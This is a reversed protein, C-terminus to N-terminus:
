IQIISVMEHTSGCGYYASKKAWESLFDFAINSMSRGGKVMKFDIYMWGIDIEFLECFMWISWVGSYLLMKDDRAMFCAALLSM